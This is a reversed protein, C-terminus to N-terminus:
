CVKVEEYLSYNFVHSFFKWHLHNLFTVSPLMGRPCGNGGHSFNWCWFYLPVCFIIVVYTDTYVTYLDRLQKKVDNCHKSDM